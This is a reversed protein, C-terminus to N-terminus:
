YYLILGLPVIVAADIIQFFMYISLCKFIAYFSLFYTKKMFLWHTVKLWPYYLLVYWCSFENWLIMWSSSFCVLCKLHRQVTSTSPTCESVQRWGISMLLYRFFHYFIWSEMELTSIMCAIICGQNEYNMFDQRLCQVGSALFMYVFSCKGMVTFIGM